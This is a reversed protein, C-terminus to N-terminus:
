KSKSKNRKPHTKLLNEVYRNFPILANVAEKQLDILLDPDFKFTQSQKMIKNVYKDKVWDKVSKPTEELILKTIESRM